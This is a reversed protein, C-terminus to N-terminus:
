NIDHGICISLQLGIINFLLHLIFLDLSLVAKVYMLMIPIFGTSPSALDRAHHYIRQLHVYAPDGWMKRHARQLQEIDERNYAM